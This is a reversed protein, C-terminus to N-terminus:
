VLRIGRTEEKELSTLIPVLAAETKGSGTPSSILISSGRRIRVFARRQVDNFDRIGIRNLLPQIAPDDAIPPEPRRLPTASLLSVPCIREGSRRVRMTKMANESSGSLRPGLHPAELPMAAALQCDSRPTGSHSCCAWDLDCSTEGRTPTLTRM